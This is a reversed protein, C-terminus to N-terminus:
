SNVETKKKSRLFVEEFLALVGVIVAMVIFMAVGAIIGLAILTELPTTPTM